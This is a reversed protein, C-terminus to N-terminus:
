IICRQLNQLVERSNVLVDHELRTTYDTGDRRGLRNKSTCRDTLFEVLTKCHVVQRPEDAGKRQEIFRLDIDLVRVHDDAFTVVLEVISNGIRRQNDNRGITLDLKRVRFDVAQDSFFRQVTHHLSQTHRLKRFDGDDTLVTLDKQLCDISTTSGVVREAHYDALSICAKAHYKTCVADLQNWTGVVHRDRRLTQAM